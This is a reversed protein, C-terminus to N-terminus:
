SLMPIGIYMNLDQCYPLIVYKQKLDTLKYYSHIASIKGLMHIGLKESDCPYSKLPKVYEFVNCKLIAPQPVKHMVERVLILKNCKTKFCNNGSDSSVRFNNWYVIRPSLRVSKLVTDNAMRELEANRHVLQQVFHKKGRVVRKLQQMFDEFPFCSINSLNGYRLADENIHLLNHVNYILFEKCYLEPVKAVFRQLLQKAYDNWEVNNASQSLLIYAACQLDMFHCYKEKSLVDRLVSISTYLLFTRFETAKYHDLDKITRPKRHFEIPIYKITNLLNFDLKSIYRPGLKLPLKGKVWTTLFKKTVGLFLLHM